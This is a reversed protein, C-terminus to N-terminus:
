LRSSCVDRRTLAQQIFAHAIRTNKLSDKQSSVYKRKRLSKVIDLNLAMAASTFFEVSSVAVVSPFSSPLNYLTSNQTYSM